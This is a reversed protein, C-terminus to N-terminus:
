VRNLNIKDLMIIEGGCTESNVGTTSPFTTPLNFLKRATLFAILEAEIIDGNLGVEHSLYVKPSIKKKINDILFSNHQGGGSIILNKPPLPLLDLSNIISQSTFTNLIALGDEVKLKEFAYDKFVFEFKKIDLSKPPNNRFYDDCLLEDLIDYNVIGDRALLGFNDFPVGIKDLIYKDMLGNGPGTDFGILRNNDLYTLNSIGGINLFCVPYKLNLKNIIYKHYIPALPAGQGGNQLDKQRFNYVINTKTLKSLLNPDGLQISIRNRPDHLITQGHFGIYEPILKSIKKLKKVAKFHDLTILKELDYLNKKNNIFDKPNDMCRKLRDQTDLSYPYILNFNTKIIDKGDSKIITADIGDMSTGSM